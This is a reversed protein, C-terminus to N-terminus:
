PFLRHDTDLELIIGAPWLFMFVKTQKSNCDDQLVSFSMGIECLTPVEWLLGM